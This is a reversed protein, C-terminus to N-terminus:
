SYSVQFTFKLLIKATKSVTLPLPGPILNFTIPRSAMRETKPSPSEVGVGGWAGGGFLLLSSKGQVVDRRVRTNPDKCLVLHHKPPLHHLHFM